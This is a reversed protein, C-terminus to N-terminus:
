QFDEQSYEHTEYLDGNEYIIYKIEGGSNEGHCNSVLHTLIFPGDKGRFAIENNSFDLSVIQEGEELYHGNDFDKNKGNIRSVGAIYTTGTAKSKHELSAQFMYNKPITVNVQIDIRLYDEILYDDIVEMFIMKPPQFDTYNYSSTTYSKAAWYCNGFGCYNDMDTLSIGNLMYPGDFGSSFIYEGSFTLTLNQLGEKLYANVEDHHIWEHNKRLTESLSYNGAHSINIEVDLCLSDYKGNSDDDVVYESFNYTFVSDDITDYELCGSLGICILLVAIVLTILHKNM